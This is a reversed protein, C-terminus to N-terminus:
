PRFLVTLMYMYRNFFHNDNIYLDKFYIKLKICENIFNKKFSAFKLRIFQIDPRISCVNGQFANCPAFDEANLPANRLLYAAAKMEDIIDNYFEKALM